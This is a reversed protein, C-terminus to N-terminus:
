TPTVDWGLKNIIIGKLIDSEKVTIYSLDLMEMISLIIQTGAPIMDAREPQLGPILRREAIPMKLFMNLINEINQKYLVYGEVRDPDYSEIGSDIAALNTATGGVALAAQVDVSKLASLPGLLMASIYKKMQMFESIDIPDKKLFREILRVAGINVSKSLNPRYGSGVALETSGGGIDAVFVPRDSEDWSAGLFTLEAETDGTIVEVKLGSFEHINQTFVDRNASDRVASTAVAHVADCRKKKCLRMFGTIVKAAASIAEHAILHRADVTRGIRVSEMARSVPILSQGEVKVILLRLSNTGIDIAARYM